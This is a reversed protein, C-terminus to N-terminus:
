AYYKGWWAKMLGSAFDYRDKKIECLYFDNELDRILKNFENDREHKPLVVAAADLTKEFEAKLARRTLGTPGSQSILSLIQYAAARRPERYYREIRSYYHQLKDQAAMSVILNRFVADVDAVVLTRQEKKWLRYLDQTVMQLFLPIPRGLREDVRQPVDVHIPVQRQGLMESVFSRVEVSTLVPLEEMSINNILDIGGLDDLTGALNISGGLLWRVCDNSPTPVERQTRFWAMFDRAEAVNEAKMNLLMDPLEDVIILVPKGAKRIQNLLDEAHQKWNGHWNPDSERLAIKFGGADVEEVRKSVREWSDTILKWGRATLQKLFQPHKEHFNDLITQFLDAPHKLDQVNQYVTIFDREPRDLLHNMVSTKGTRRPATVLVHETRLKEWIQDIFQQRFQLDVPAVPAGTYFDAIEAKSNM